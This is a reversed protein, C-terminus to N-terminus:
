NDNGKTKVALDDLVKKMLKDVADFAEGSVSPDNQRVEIHNLGGLEKFRQIVANCQSQGDHVSLCKELTELICILYHESHCIGPDLIGTLVEIAGYEALRKKQSTVAGLYFIFVIIIYDTCPYLHTNM